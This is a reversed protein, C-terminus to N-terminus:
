ECVSVTQGEESSRIAAEMLRMVRLAQKATVVPEAEGNVADVVNSYLENDDYTVEPLPLTLLSKQDRPAMTKTLGAGAMIPLTDKDEWSALQVLKGECKWNDVVASGSDGGVYWLPLSIFNCTGVEVLASLGGAFTILMTFGDDVEENLVYSLRCYVSEAKDPIMFLLRDLLHVGWDLMMGGGYEKEKRWDGPIGRSGQVRSEIRFVNGVLKEEYIKKVIRYDRDWRRNQRPYFLRGTERSVKMVAELERSDMMVPKECLVHKGARMAAIAMDKHLHNPTAILIIDVSQDELMRDYSDYLAFGKERAWEMRAPNSDYVGALELKGSIDTNASTDFIKTGREQSSNANYVANGTGSGIAIAHGGGMGGCGIIAIRRKKDMKFNREMKMGATRKVRCAEPLHM